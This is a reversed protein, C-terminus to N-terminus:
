RLAALNKGHPPPGLFPAQGMFVKRRVGRETKIPYTEPM